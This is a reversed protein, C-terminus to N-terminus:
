PAEDTLAPKGTAQEHVRVLQKALLDGMLEEMAGVDLKGNMWARDAKRLADYYPERDTTILEPITTRGPLVFGLGACLM